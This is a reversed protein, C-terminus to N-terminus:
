FKVNITYCICKEVERKGFTSLLTVILLSFVAFVACIIYDKKLIIQRSEIEKSDVKFKLVVEVYGKKKLSSVIKSVRDPTINVISAIYKNSVFSSGTENSLYLIMSLILKNLM